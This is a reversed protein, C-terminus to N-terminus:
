ILRKLRFIVPKNNRAIYGGGNGASTSFGRERTLELEGEKLTGVFKLLTTNIENGAQEQTVVSFTVEDGNITGESIPSSKYDGYLKGGIANGNQTIRFAIDLMAGQRGVPIQGVWIGNLDAASVAIASLSLLTIHILRRM